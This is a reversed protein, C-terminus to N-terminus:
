ATAKRVQPLVVWLAVVVVTSIAAAVIGAGGGIVFDFIFGTVGIALLGVVILEALLLRNGLIVVHDKAPHRFFTRHLIVPAVGLATSLAALGVLVLYLDIQPTTLDTFRQQFALALLFGTMVQTGTLTVRLEQLIDDWNRDAREIRTEDRGDDPIDQARSDARAM